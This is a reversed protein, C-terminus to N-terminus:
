YPVLAVTLMLFVCHIHYCVQIDVDRLEGAQKEREKEDAGRITKYKDFYNLINHVTAISIGTYTAIQECTLIVSLRVVITQIEPSLLHGLVM